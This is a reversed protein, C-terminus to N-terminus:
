EGRVVGMVGGMLVDRVACRVSLVLWAWLVVTVVDRIVGRILCSFRCM